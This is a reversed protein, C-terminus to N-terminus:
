SPLASCSATPPPRAVICATVYPNHKPIAKTLYVYILHSVNEPLNVTCPGEFVVVKFHEKDSSETLIKLIPQPKQQISNKLGQLNGGLLLLFFCVPFMIYVFTRNM